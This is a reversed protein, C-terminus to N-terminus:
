FSSKYNSKIVNILYNTWFIEINIDFYILWLIFRFLYVWGWGRAGRTGVGRGKLGKCEREERPEGSLFGSGGKM